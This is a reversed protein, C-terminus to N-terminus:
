YTHIHFHSHGGDSHKHYYEDVLNVRKLLNIDDLLKETPMDAAITHDEGFLISRRSVEQVLSLDHTSLIITKGAKNLNVLFEAFWRETRPDLGNMPEDLMLTEPNMALVCAVALKRKEGGSLHWPARNEFGRLKLLDLMDSVRQKVEDDPLGMQRPVFAIEEFVDACFLQTDSNQFVFGIKQHFSKSFQPNSLSKRNIEMGEFHYTGSDNFILGNLIKLLTSKGSGNPGLLSVSEGKEINFNLNDLAKNGDYSYSLDSIELLCYSTNNQPFM